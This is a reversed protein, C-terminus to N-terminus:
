KKNFTNQTPQGVNGSMSDPYKNRDSEGARALQDVTEGFRREGRGTTLLLRTSARWTVSGHLSLM